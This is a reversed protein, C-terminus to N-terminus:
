PRASAMAREQQTAKILLTMLVTVVKRASNVPRPHRPGRSPLINGQLLLPRLSHTFRHRYQYIDNRYKKRFIDRSSLVLLPRPATNLPLLRFFLSSPCPSFLFPPSTCIERSAFVILSNDTIHLVGRGAGLRSLVFGVHCYRCSM